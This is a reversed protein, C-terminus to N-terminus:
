QPVAAILQQTYAERPRSIIDEPRACEVAKGQHMVMVQDSIFRIVSLDHSIFILSFGREDQLDKLLNLVHAQVSVDLASVSEDCILLEPEVMLARAIGIRQRQGGSFERAFRNAHAPNLGVRQLMVAVRDAMESNSLNSRNIRLPEALMQGITMAPNLSGYPDQFVMQMKPRYPAFEHTSLTHIAEGKFYVEGQRLPALRLLSRGLTTKGSGSEGVIGLSEGPRLQISVGDVAKVWGDPQLKWWATPKPFWVQLDRADLLLPRNDIQARRQQIEAEALLQRDLVRAIPTSTAGSAAGLDPMFDDIVPLRRLAQKVPPRCALLGQTYPHAPQEFVAQTEGQEVIRGHQMVMVRQALGRVVGLDHSIFLVAAGTETKLEEILDLIAAQVTVDLATTPEDAILLRPSACMAMAIMVRQRQGGSLQHPYAKFIRLPDPLKVRRFWEMAQERAQTRTLGQHLRLSECIQEGCTFVPNLSTMPEQFIMSIEQGRYRRADVEPLSFLDAPLDSEGQWLAQGQRQAGPPLLQMLSLATLSKGSGSEGVVGLTEGSNISFNVGDVAPQLKKGNLFAIRLDKIELLLSTDM